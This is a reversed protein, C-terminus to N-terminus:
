SNRPDNKKVENDHLMELRRHSPEETAPTRLLHVGDDSVSTKTPMSTTASSSSAPLTGVPREYMKRGSWVARVHNVRTRVKPSFGM